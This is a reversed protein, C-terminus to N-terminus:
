RGRYPLQRAEGTHCSNLSQIIRWMLSPYITVLRDIYIQLFGLISSLMLLELTDSYLLSRTTETMRLMRGFSLAADSILAILIAQRVDTNVARGVNPPVRHGVMKDIRLWRSM